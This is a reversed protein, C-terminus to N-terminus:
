FVKNSLKIALKHIRSDRKRESRIIRKVKLENFQVHNFITYRTRTKCQMTKNGKKGNRQLHIFYQRLFSDFDDFVRLLDTCQM